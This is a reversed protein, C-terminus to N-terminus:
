HVRRQASSDGKPRPSIDESQGDSYAYSGGERKRPRRHMTRRGALRNSRRRARRTSRRSPWRDPSHVRNRSAVRIFIFFSAEISAEKKITLRFGRWLPPTGYLSQRHASLLYFEAYFSRTDFGGKHLPLSKDIIM